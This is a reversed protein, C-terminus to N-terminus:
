ADVEEVSESLNHFEDPSMELAAIIVLAKEWTVDKIYGSKLRSFYSSNIGTRRCLDAAKMGKKKLALELTKYFNM